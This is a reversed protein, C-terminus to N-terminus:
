TGKHYMVSIAAGYVKCNRAAAANQTTFVLTYESSATVDIAIAGTTKNEITGAGSAGWPSAGGVDQAVATTGPAISLPRAYLAIEGQSADGANYISDVWVDVQTIRMDGPAFCLPIELVDHAAPNNPMSWYPTAAFPPAGFSDLGIYVWQTANHTEASQIPLVVPREAMGLIMKDQFNNHDAAFIQAADAASFVRAGDYITAM